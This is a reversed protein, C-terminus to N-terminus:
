VLACQTIIHNDTQPARAAGQNICMCIPPMNYENQSDWTCDKSPNMFKLKNADLCWFPSWLFYTSHSSFQISPHVLKEVENKKKLKEYQSGNRNTQTLTHKKEEKSSQDRWHM